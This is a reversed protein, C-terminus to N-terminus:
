IKIEINCVSIFDYMKPHIDFLWPKGNELWINYYFNLFEGMGRRVTIQNIFSSKHNIKNQKVLEGTAIALDLHTFTHKDVDLYDIWKKIVEKKGYFHTDGCFTWNLMDEDSPSYLTNPELNACEKDFINTTNPSHFFVNDLRFLYINEYLNWNDSSVIDQLATKWHFIMKSTNSNLFLNESNNIKLSKYKINSFSEPTVIEKYSYHMFKNPSGFFQGNKYFETLDLGLPNFGPISKMEWDNTNKDFELWCTRNEESFDWTSIYVDVNEPIDWFKSVIDFTRYEGFLVLAHKM